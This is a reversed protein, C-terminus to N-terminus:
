MKTNLYNVGFKIYKLKIKGVLRTLYSKAFDLNIKKKDFLYLIFKVSNMLNINNSEWFEIAGGDDTAIILNSEMVLAISYLEGSDIQLNDILKKSINIPNKVRIIGKSKYINFIEMDESDYLKYESEDLIEKEVKSVIYLEFVDILYKELGLSVINIWFSTDVVLKPKLKIDPIM